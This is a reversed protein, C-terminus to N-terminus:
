YYLNVEISRGDIRTGNILHISRQADNANTYRVLATGHGKLEISAVEGVKGFRDYLEHYTFGHPLNRIFVTSIQSNRNSSVGGYSTSSPNSYHTSEYTSNYGSTVQNSPLSSGTSPASIYGGGVSYPAPTSAQTSSYSPNMSSSTYSGYSASPIPPVGVVGQDVNPPQQPPPMSQQGYNSTSGLVQTPAAPQQGTTGTLQALSQVLNPVNVLSNLVAPLVNPTIVNAPSIQTNVPAVPITASPAAAGSPLATGTNSINSRSINLPQGNIGLGKGINELGPPLKSAWRDAGFSDADEFKDLRVSIVRDYLKSNNFMSIAQVAEVPHEFEVVGFGKSRGDHDKYLKTREIKGALKFVDELKREDVKFDLNAIFVRNNLPGKIGLSDIFERNLGYTEFNEQSYNSYGRSDSHGRHSDGGYRDGEYSSGHRSSRHRDNYYPDDYYGRRERDRSRERGRSRDRDSRPRDRNRERERDRDMRTLILRGCSDREMEFDEKVVLQRDKFHFRHLVECARKASASDEFEILGCGRPKGSEDEFLQCFKVKGVKERFLDKLETWPVEFPVNAVYVRRSFERHPSRSRSRARRNRNNRDGRNSRSRKHNNSNNRSNVVGAEGSTGNGNTAVAAPNAAEVNQVSVDEPITNSLTTETKVNSDAMM